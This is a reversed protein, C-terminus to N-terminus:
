EMVKLKLERLQRDEISAPAGTLLDQATATKPFAIVDRINETGILSMVLRDIGQGFGRHPPAGYRYADIFWGFQENITEESMGTRRFVERQTEPNYIRLSGSSMEVGNLVLDYNDARITLLVEPETSALKHADEALPMSFPNHGSQVSGDEGPEYLPFDVIWLFEFRSEDILNFARGLQLRMNGLITQNKRHEGMVMFWTGHSSGSHEEALQAFATAATLFKGVSGKPEEGSLELTMLGPAGLGKAVETWEDLQKRSLSADPIFVGHVRQGAELGSKVFNAEIGDAIETLDNLEAGFRLDPKDSGFRDMAERYPLRTFPTKLERGLVSHWVAAMCGEAVAFLEDRTAFSMELDLQTHEPQRNGRLDEDRLCKAIQYYRDLGAVMLIQKFLQPSQPLAYFSGPHVRSPVVYDRAGEPTSRALLPTEVELFGQSDLYGRIAAIAKHRVTLANVMYRRRLDIYRYKLRLEESAKVDEEVQFPVPEAANLVVASEVVFERDGGPYERVEKEPRPRSMGSFAVVYEGRLSSAVAHAQPNSEPDFVCQLEGFRDRLTIFTLQGFDRRHHVWGMLTAPTGVPAHIYQEINHTRTLEV